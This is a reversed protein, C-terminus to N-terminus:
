FIRQGEAAGEGRPRPQFGRRSGALEKGPYECGPLKPNVVAVADPIKEGPLHHDTIIFDIGLEKADEVEEVATIGCDTSIILTAGRRGLEEIANRNIGYGDKVRHPAFYITDAEFSRFFECLLSTSTVGDADYDGYIAVTEGDGVAKEIRSVAEEMGALLFPNPIDRMGGGFFKAAEEDTRIGRNVLLQGVFPSVGAKDAIKESLEPFQERMVWNDKM